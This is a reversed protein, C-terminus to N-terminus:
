WILKHHMGPINELGAAEVDKFFEQAKPSKHMRSFEVIKEMTDRWVASYEQKADPIELQRLEHLIRSFENLLQLFCFFLIIM